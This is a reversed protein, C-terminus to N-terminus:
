IPEHLIQGILESPYFDERYVLEKSFESIDWSSIIFESLGQLIFDISIDTYRYRYPYGISTYSRLHKTIEIFRKTGIYVEASWTYFFEKLGHRDGFDGIYRLSITRSESRAHLSDIVEISHLSHIHTLYQPSIATGEPELKVSDIAPYWM